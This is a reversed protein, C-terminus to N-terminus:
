FPKTQKNTKNNHIIEHAWVITSYRSCLIQSSELMMTETHFHKFESRPVSHNMEKWMACFHSSPNRNLPCCCSCTRLTGTVPFFLIPFLPPNWSSLTQLRSPKPYWGCDHHLPAHHNLQSEILPLILRWDLHEIILFCQGKKPHSFWFLRGITKLWRKKKREQSVASM